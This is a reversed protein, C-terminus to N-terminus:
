QEFSTLYYNIDRNEVVSVMVLGNLMWNTCMDECM